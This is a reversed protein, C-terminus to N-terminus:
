VIVSNDERKGIQKIWRYHDQTWVTQAASQCTLGVLHTVWRCPLQHLLPAVEVGHYQLLFLSTSFLFFFFCALDIIAVTVHCHLDDYTHFFDVHKTSKLYFFFADRSASNVAKHYIYGIWYKSMQPLTLGCQFGHEAHYIFAWSYMSYFPVSSIKEALSCCYFCM